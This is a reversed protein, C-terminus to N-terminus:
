VYAALQCASLFCALKAGWGGVGERMKQKVYNMVIFRRKKKYFTDNKRLWGREWLKSKIQYSAHNIFM